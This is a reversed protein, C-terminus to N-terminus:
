VEYKEQQQLYETATCGTVQKFVRNFSAQYAFGAKQFISSIKYNKHEMSDFDELVQKIRYHNLLNNFNTNGKEKLAKSLYTRNTNLMEALQNLSFSPDQWLKKEELCKIANQYLEDFKDQYPKSKNVTTIAANNPHIDAAPVQPQLLNENQIQLIKNEKIKNFIKLYHLVFFICFLVTIITSINQVMDETRSLQLPHSINIYRSLLFPSLFSIMIYIAWLILTRMKYHYNLILFVPIYYLAQILVSNYILYFSYQFISYAVVYMTTLVKFSLKKKLGIMWGAVVCPFFSFIILYGIGEPDVIFYFCGMFFYFPSTFLIFNKMFEKEKLLLLQNTEMQLILLFLPM